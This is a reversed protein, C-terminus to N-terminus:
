LEFSMLPQSTPQDSGGEPEVTIGLAQGANIGHVDLSARGEDPDLLGASHIEDGMIWAQYTRGDPPAALGETLLYLRDESKSAVMVALFVAAATAALRLPWRRPPVVQELYERVDTRRFDLQPSGRM